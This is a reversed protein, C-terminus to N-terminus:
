KVEDAWSAGVKWLKDGVEFAGADPSKGKFGESFGKIIIGKDVIESNGKITFDAKDAATFPSTEVIFNADCSTGIWTPQEEEKKPDRKAVSNSLNNMVNIREITYGKAWRGMSSGCDWITNNYFNIDTNYWNIMFASWTVNWVVNNYVDFGKSNNDLYIGAARGDAYAPGKSDHVYNHHIKTKRLKDNGVTYYVGGDNNIRMCDYLDNYCIESNVGSTVIADRGCTYITNNKIITKEGGSRIGNAHIGITNFYRIVNNHIFYGCGEKSSAISVATAM